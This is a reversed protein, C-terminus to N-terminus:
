VCGKRLSNASDAVLYNMGDSYDLVSSRYAHICLHLFVSSTQVHDMVLRVVITKGLDLAATLFFSV